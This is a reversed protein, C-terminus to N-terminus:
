DGIFHKLNVANMSTRQLRFIRRTLGLSLTHMLLLNVIWEEKLIRGWNKKSHSTWVDSVLFIYWNCPMWRRREWAAPIDRSAYCFNIVTCFVQYIKEELIRAKRKKNLSQKLKLVSFNIWIWPKWRWTRLRCTHRALWLSLKHMPSM